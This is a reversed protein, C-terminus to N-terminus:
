AYKYSCYLKLESFLLLLCNFRAWTWLVMYEMIGAAAVLLSSFYVNLITKM